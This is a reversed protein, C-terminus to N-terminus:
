LYRDGSVSSLFGRRLAPNKQVSCLVYPEIGNPEGLRALCLIKFQLVFFLIQFLMKVAELEEVGLAFISPNSLNPETGLAAQVVGSEFIILHVGGVPHGTHLLAAGFIVLQSLASRTQVLTGETSENFGLSTGALDFRGASKRQSNFLRSVFESRMGQSLGFLVNEFEDLSRHGQLDVLKKNFELTRRNKEKKFNGLAISFQGDLMQGIGEKRGELFEM